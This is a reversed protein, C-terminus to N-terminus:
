HVEPKALCKQEINLNSINLIWCKYQIKALVQYFIENRFTNSVKLDCSYVPSSFVDGCITVDDICFLHDGVHYQQLFSRKVIFLICNVLIWLFSIKLFGHTNWTKLMCKNWLLKWFICLVHVKNKIYEVLKTIKVNGKENNIM